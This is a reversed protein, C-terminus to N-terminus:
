TAPNSDGFNRLCHIFSHGKKEGLINTVVKQNIEQVFVCIFINNYRHHRSHIGNLFFLTHPSFSPGKALYKKKTDNINLNHVLEMYSKNLIHPEQFDNM